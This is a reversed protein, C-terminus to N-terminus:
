LRPLLQLSNFARISLVKPVQPSGQRVVSQESIKKQIKLWLADPPALSAAQIEDAALRAIKDRGKSPTETLYNFFEEKLEEKKM